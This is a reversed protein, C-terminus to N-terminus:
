KGDGKDLMPRDDTFQRQVFARTDNWLADHYGAISVTGKPAAPKMAVPHAPTTGTNSRVTTSEAPSSRPPSVVAPASRPATPTLDKPKVVKDQWQDGPMPQEPAIVPGSDVPMDQVLGPDQADPFPEGSVAVLAVLLLTPGIM